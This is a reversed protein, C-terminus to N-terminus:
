TAWWGHIRTWPASPPPVSRLWGNRADGPNAEAVLTDMASGPSAGRGAAVRGTAPVASRRSAVLQNEIGEPSTCPSTATTGSARTM